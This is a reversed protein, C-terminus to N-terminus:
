IQPYNCLKEDINNYVKVAGRENSYYKDALKWGAQYAEYVTPYLRTKHDKTNHFKDTVLAFYKIKM